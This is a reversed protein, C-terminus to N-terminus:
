WWATLGSNVYGGRHIAAASRWTLCLLWRLERTSRPPTSPRPNSAARQTADGPTARSFHAATPSVITTPVSPDSVARCATASATRSALARSACSWTTVANSGARAVFITPAGSPAAFNQPGSVFSTARDVMSSAAARMRAAPTSTSACMTWFAGASARSPTASSTPALMITTPFWPMDPIRRMKPLTGFLTECSAFHLTSITEVRLDQASARPPLPQHARTDTVLRHSRRHRIGIQDLRAAGSVLPGPPQENVAERTVDVRNRNLGVAQRSVIGLVHKLLHERAGEFM